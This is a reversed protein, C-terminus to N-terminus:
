ADGSGGTVRALAVRSHASPTLSRVTADSYRLCLDHGNLDEILTLGVTRLYNPMEAPDFGTLFPEGLAAANRQMRLFGSDRNVFAAVDTYTFVIQSGPASCQSVSRLAATNEARTLYISVGLWSFFSTARFDYSSRALAEYLTEQSLDAAVYQTPEKAPLGLAAIRAIKLGQTAPHDVEFLAIHAMADTRRLSFSDFGAGIQVYQRAGQRAAQALADEAYRARFVVSAYSPVGPLYRDLVISRQPEPLPTLPLPGDSRAREVLQDKFESPVLLDGWPDHHVPYEATRTHHARILATALATRSPMNAEM